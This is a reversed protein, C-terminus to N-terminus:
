AAEVILDRGDQRVNLTVAVIGIALGVGTGVLAGTKAGSPGAIVWGIFAGTVTGAATAFFITEVIRRLEPDSIQDLAARALTFGERALMVLFSEAPEPHVRVRPTEGANARKIFENAFDEVTAM